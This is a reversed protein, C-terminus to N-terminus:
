LFIFITLTLALTLTISQLVCTIIVKYLLGLNFSSLKNPLVKAIMLVPFGKALTISDYHWFRM